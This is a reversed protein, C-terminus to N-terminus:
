STRRPEHDPRLRRGCGRRPRGHRQSASVPLPNTGRGPMTRELAVLDVDELVVMSPQLARAIATAQGLAGAGPDSLLLITRGPMQGCLYMVSLTKGTGPPGYLLLGRKLHRGNARLTEAHRSIRITHAEIAELDAAPLVLDDRTIAPLEHFSIGFGGWESFSFSLIKSRYINLEHMLERVRGVFREAITPEQAVVDLV